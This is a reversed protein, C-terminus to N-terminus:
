GSSLSSPFPLEDLRGHAAAIVSEAVSEWSYRAAAAAALAARARERVAPELELWHTLKAAIQEVATPGVQFSLLERLPEELAPALAATVEAMGSHGASLPLAGAAAAEAAVMGFAEPFTSPMVQAECAPLLDPLDEHELRGSFHIREAAAPAAKLWSDDVRDLFSMLIPLEGAPGGELERGRAAVDRLDELDAGRLAEVIRGLADRYTGFGV